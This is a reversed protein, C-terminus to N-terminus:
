RRGGAQSGFDIPRDDHRILELRLAAAIAELDWLWAQLQEESENALRPNQTALTRLTDRASAVAAEFNEQPLSM